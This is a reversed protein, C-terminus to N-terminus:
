LKQVFFADLHVQDKAWHSQPLKPVTREQASKRETIAAVGVSNLQIIAYPEPSSPRHRTFRDIPLSVEREKFVRHKPGLIM